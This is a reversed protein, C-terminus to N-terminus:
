GQPMRCTRRVRSDPLPVFFSAVRLGIQNGDTDELVAVRIGPAVERPADCDTAGDALLAERAADLEDVAVNAVPGWWCRDTGPGGGSSDPDTAM